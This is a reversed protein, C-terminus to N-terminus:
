YRKIVKPTVRPNTSRRPALEVSASLCQNQTNHVKSGKSRIESDAVSTQATRIEQRPELPRLTVRMRLSVFTSEGKRTEWQMLDSLLTAVCRSIRDRTIGETEWGGRESWWRRISMILLSLFLSPFAAHLSGTARRSRIDCRESNERKKENWADRSSFSFFSFSLFSPSWSFPFLFLYFLIRALAFLAFSHWHPSDSDTATEKGAKNSVERWVLDGPLSGHSRWILRSERRARIEPLFARSSYFLITDLAIENADRRSISALQKMKLQMRAAIVVFDTHKCLCRIRLESM